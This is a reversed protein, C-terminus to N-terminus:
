RADGKRSFRRRAEREAGGATIRKEAAPDIKRGSEPGYAAMTEQVIKKVAKEVAPFLTQEVSM